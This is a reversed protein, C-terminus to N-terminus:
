HDPKQRPRAKAASSRDAVPSPQCSHLNSAYIGVSFHGAGCGCVVLRHAAGELDVRHSFKM